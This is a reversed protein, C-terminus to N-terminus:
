HPAKPGLPVEFYILGSESTVSKVDPVYLSAHSVVDFHHDVDFFLFGQIAGHPPVVDSQLALPSLKSEIDRTKSDEGPPSISPLRFVKPAPPGNPHAIKAAAQNLSLAPLRSNGGPIDINLRITSLDIHVPDNSDNKFYTDVALIGAKYPDAKSFKDKSRAADTYANAAVTFNQHSDRASWESPVTQPVQFVALPVLALASVLLSPPKTKMEHEYICDYTSVNHSEVASPM